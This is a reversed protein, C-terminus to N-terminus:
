KLPKCILEFTVMLMYLKQGIYRVSLICKFLIKRFLVRLFVRYIYFM